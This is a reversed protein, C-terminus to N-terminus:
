LLRAKKTSSACDWNDIVDKMYGALIQITKEHDFREEVKKRANQSISGVDAEYLSIMCDFLGDVDKEDALFGNERDDILEPIGSHRTSIVPMGCAMAECIITPLGEMDGDDATVSPHIFVDANKLLEIYQQYGVSGIFNIKESLELSSVLKILNERLPGDGAIILRARSDVEGVYRKFAKLTYEIGKKPTLRSIQLFVVGDSISFRKKFPFRELPIGCYAVFCPMDPPLHPTLRKKMDESNVFVAAFKSNKLRTRYEVDTLAASADVGLFYTTMPIACRSVIDELDIAISGFNVHLLETEKLQNRLFREESKILKRWCNQTPVVLPVIDPYERINEVERTIVRVDYYSSLGQIQRYIFTESIPLYKHHFITVKNRM